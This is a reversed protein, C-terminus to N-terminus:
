SASPTVKIELRSDQFVFRRGRGSRRAHGFRTVLTPPFPALRSVLGASFRTLTLVAKYAKPM